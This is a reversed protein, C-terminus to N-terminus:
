LDTRDPGTGTGRDPGTLRSTHEGAQDVRKFCCICIGSAVSQKAEGKSPSVLV